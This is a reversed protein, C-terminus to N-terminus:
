IGTRYIYPNKKTRGGPPLDFFGDVADGESLILLVVIIVLVLAAYSGWTVNILQKRLDEADVALTVFFVAFLFFVLLALLYEGRASFCCWLIYAALALCLYIIMCWIYHRQLLKLETLIGYLAFLAIFAAWVAAAEWIAPMYGYYVYLSSATIGAAVANVAFLLPCLRVSRRGILFFVLSLVMIGLGTGFGVWKSTIPILLFLYMSLLTIGSFLVFSWFSISRKSLM